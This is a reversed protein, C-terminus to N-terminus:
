WTYRLNMQGSYVFEYAGGDQVGVGINFLLDGYKADTGLEFLVSGGSLDVGGELVGGIVYDNSASTIDVYSLATYPTWVGSYQEYSKRLAVGARLMSSDGDTLEFDGANFGVDDLSVDVSSYQLQPEIELNSKTKFGYGLELSYGSADGSLPTTIGAGNTEGDLSFDRYSLDAYFGNGPTFTVYGGFTNANLEGKGGADPRYTGKALGGLLGVTWAETFSYGVGFEIGDNGFSFDQSGADGFNNRNASPTISGDSGYIRAWTGAAGHVDAAGTNKLFQREGGQRQYMTGLSGYWMNQIAPSASTLLVGSTSLGTVDFGLAFESGDYLLSYDATFLSSASVNVDGLVFNSASSSGSVEVIPITAGANLDAASPLSLLDINVTNSTGSLVNGDIYLTDSTLTAGDVDVNLDGSGAFDGIITLADDAAGDNMHISSGNNVFVGYYYGGEGGGYYGMNIVNNLGNAYVKGENLFYNYGGALDITDDTLFIRGDEGNYLYDDGNDAIIGGSIDGYNIIESGAGTVSIAVAYTDSGATVTGENIILAGTASRVAIAQSYGGASSATVDGSNIVEVGTYYSLAVIGQALTEAQVDINGSNTVLVDGYSYYDNGAQARLGIASYTSSSVSIDGANEISVSGYSSNARVGLAALYSDVNVDNFNRVSVDGNTSTAQIGIGRGYESAVNIVGDNVVSIDAPLYYYYGIYGSTSALIGTANEVATVTLDGVNILDLNGYLTNALIGFSRGTEATVDLDGSNEITIDGFQSVAYIGGALFAGTVNMDGSNYVKTYGVEGDLFEEYSSGKTQIGYAATIGGVVNLDGNNAIYTSGFRSNASLGTGKNVGNVDIDGSNIVKAVGIARSAAFAGYAWGGLYVQEGFYESYYTEYVTSTVSIDGTNITTAGYAGAAGAGIAGIGGVVSLDGSNNIYGIQDAIAYLARSRADVTEVTIDGSNYIRADNTSYAGIGTASYSAMVTIDGSNRVISSGLSYKGSSRAAIGVASPQGTTANNIITIDGTNTITADGGYKGTGAVIGAAYAYFYTQSDGTAINIDGSNVIKADGGGYRNYCVYYGNNYPPPCDYYRTLSDTAAFIGVAQEGGTISIDGNNSVTSDGLLTRATIGNLWDGTRIGVGLGGDPNQDVISIDGSNDISISGYTSEAKIGTATFDGSLYVYNPYYGYRGYGDGSSGALSIDGTNSITIDAYAEANIGITVSNGFLIDNSAFAAIDATNTIAVSYGYASIGIAEASSVLYGSADVAYAAVNILGSNTISVDGYESYATIGIAEAQTFYDEAYVTATSVIQGSNDVTVGDYEAYAAIGISQSDESSYTTVTIAGDNQVDNLGYGDYSGAVAYIGLARASYGYAYADIDGTNVVTADYGAEAYIGVALASNGYYGAIASINGDNSIDVDGYYSIAVIGGARYIGEVYLDTSPNVVTIDGAQFYGIGIDVPPPAALAATSASALLGAMLAARLAKVTPSVRYTRNLGYRAKSKRTM